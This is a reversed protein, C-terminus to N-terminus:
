PTGITQIIRRMTGASAASLTAIMQSSQISSVPRLSEFLDDHDFTINYIGALSVQYMDYVTSIMDNQDRTMDEHIVAGNVTLRATNVTKADSTDFLSIQEILDTAPLGNFVDVKSPAAGNTNLDDTDWKEIANPKGSSFDDVVAYCTLVPTVGAAIPVKIQFSDKAGLWGTELALGNQFDARKRWPQEFFIPLRTIGGGNAAGNVSLSVFQPGQSSNIKDIQTATARRIINGGIIVQIDGSSFALGPGTLAARATDRMEVVIVKYRPGKPCNITATGGAVVGAIDIIQIKRNPYFM